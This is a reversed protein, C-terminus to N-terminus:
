PQMGGGHAAPCPQDLVYELVEGGFPDRDEHRRV